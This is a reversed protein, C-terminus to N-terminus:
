RNRRVARAARSQRRKRRRIHETATGGFETVFAVSATRSAREIADERNEARVMQTSGDAYKVSWRKM